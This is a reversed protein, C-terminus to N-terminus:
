YASVVLSVAAKAHPHLFTTMRASQCGVSFLLRSQSHALYSILPLWRRKKEM